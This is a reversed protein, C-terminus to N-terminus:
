YRVHSRAKESLYYILLGLVFIIFSLISAQELRYSNLLNIVLLALTPEANLFFSSVAFDGLSWLSAMLALLYCPKKLQPWTIHWFAQDEKAGLTRAVLVQPNLTRWKGLVLWRFLLPFTLLTFCIATKLLFSFESSGPLLSLSFGLIAVSPAIYSMFFRDIISSYSKYLVLFCLLIEFIFVLLFLILSNLLAHLIPLSNWLEALNQIFEGGIILAGLDKLWFVTLLLIPVLAVWQWLSSLRAKYNDIRIERSDSRRNLWVLMALIFVSLAQIMSYVLAMGWNGESRVLRFIHVELSTVKGGSLVFPISFSVLCIAFVLFYTPILIPIALPLGVRTFRYFPNAGLVRAIELRSQIDLLFYTHIAVAVLGANILAHLAVVWFLGQHPLSFVQTFSFLSLIIFLPPILNPALLCARVTNLRSPSQCAFLSLSLVSGLLLAFFASLSAQKFGNILPWTWSWDWNLEFHPVLIGLLAYPSLLLGIVLFPRLSASKVM